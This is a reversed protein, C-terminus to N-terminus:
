KHIGLINEAAMHFSGSPGTGLSIPRCTQSSPFGQLMYKPTTVPSTMPYLLPCCTVIPQGDPICKRPQINQQKGATM